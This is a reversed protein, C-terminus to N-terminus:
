AHVEVAKRSKLYHYGVVALATAFFAVGGINDAFEGPEGMELVFGVAKVAFALAILVAPVVSRTEKHGSFVYWLAAITGIGVLVTDDLAGLPSEIFIQPVYTFGAITIGAASLANFRELIWQRIHM